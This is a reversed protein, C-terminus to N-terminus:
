RYCNRWIDEEEYDEYEYEGEYDYNYRYDDDDSGSSDSANYMQRWTFSEPRNYIDRVMECLSEFEKECKYIMEWSETEYDEELSM